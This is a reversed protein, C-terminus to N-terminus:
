DTCFCPIRVFPQRHQSQLRVFLWDRLTGRLRTIGLTVENPSEILLRNRTSLEKPSVHLYHSLDLAIHTRYALLRRKTDAGEALLRLLM